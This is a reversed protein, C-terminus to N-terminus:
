WRIFYNNSTLSQAYILKYKIFKQSIRYLMIFHKNQVIASEWGGWVCM